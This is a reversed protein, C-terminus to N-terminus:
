KWAGELYFPTVEKYGKKTAREGSMVPKGGNTVRTTIHLLKGSPQKKKGEWEVIHCAVQNDSYKGVVKVRAKDGPEVGEPRKLPSGHHWTMHTKDKFFIGTFAIKKELLDELKM